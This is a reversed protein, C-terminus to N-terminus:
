AFYICKVRDVWTWEGLIKEMMKRRMLTLRMRLL